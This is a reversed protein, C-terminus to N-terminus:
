AAQNGEHRYDDMEFVNNDRKELARRNLENDQISHAKISNIEQETKGAFLRNLVEVQADVQEDTISELDARMRDSHDIQKQLKFQQYQEASSFSQEQPSQQEPM